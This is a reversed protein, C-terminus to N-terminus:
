SRKEIQKILDNFIFEHFPLFVYWYIKGFVTNTDYYPIVSLERLGAVERINFELWARGPLKMETRLLLRENPRIDEM